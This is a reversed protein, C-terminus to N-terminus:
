DFGPKLYRPQLRKRVSIQEIGYRLTTHIPFPSPLSKYTRAGVTNSPYPVRNEISFSSYCLLFIYTTFVICRISFPHLYVAGRYGRGGEYVRVCYLAEVAIRSRTHTFIDTRHALIRARIRSLAVM